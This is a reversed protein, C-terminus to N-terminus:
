VGPGVCAETISLVSRLNLYNRIAKLSGQDKPYKEILLFTDFFDGQEFSEIIVIIGFLQGSGLLPPGHSDGKLLRSKKSRKKDLFFSANHADL